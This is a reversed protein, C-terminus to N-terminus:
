EQNYPKTLAQLLDTVQEGLFTHRSRESEPLSQRPDATPELGDGMADFVTGALKSAENAGHKAALEKTLDAFAKARIDPSGKALINLLSPKEQVAEPEPVSPRVETGPYPTTNPIEPQPTGKIQNSEIVEMFITYPVRYVSALYTDTSM